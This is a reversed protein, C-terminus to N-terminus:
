RVPLTDIRAIGAPTPRVVAAFAESFEADSDHRLLRANISPVDAATADRAFQKLRADNPFPHPPRHHVQPNKASSFVPRLVHELRQRDM